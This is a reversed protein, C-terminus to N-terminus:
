RRACFEVKEGKWCSGDGIVFDIPKKGPYTLFGGETPEEEPTSIMYLSSGIQIIYDNGTMRTSCEGRKPPQGKIKLSCNTFNVPANDHRVSRASAASSLLLAAALGLAFGSRIM